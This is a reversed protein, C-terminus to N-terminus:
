SVGLSDCRARKAEAATAALSEECVPPQPQLAASGGGGRATGGKPRMYKLDDSIIYEDARAGPIVPSQERPSSRCSPLHCCKLQRFQFGSGENGKERFRPWPKGGTRGTPQAYIEASIM